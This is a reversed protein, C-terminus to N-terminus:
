LRSVTKGWNSLGSASSSNSQPTSWVPHGAQPEYDLFIQMTLHQSAVGSVLLHPVGTVSCAAVWMGRSDERILGRIGRTLGTSGKQRTAHPYCHCSHCTPLEKDVARGKHSMMSWLM